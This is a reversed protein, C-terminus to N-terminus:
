EVIFQILSYKIKLPFPTVFGNAMQGFDELIIPIKSSGNSIRRNPVLGEVLPISKELETIALLAQHSYHQPYYLRFHDSEMAKWDWFSAM